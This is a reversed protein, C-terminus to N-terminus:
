GVADTPVFAYHYHPDFGNGSLRILLAVSTVAYLDGETGSAGKILTCATGAPVTFTAGWLTLTVPRKLKM